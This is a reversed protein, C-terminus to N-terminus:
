TMGTPAGPKARPLVVRGSPANPFVFEFDTIFDDDGNSGIDGRFNFGVPINDLAGVTKDPGPCDINANAQTNM